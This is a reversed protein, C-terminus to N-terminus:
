DKGASLNSNVGGAKRPRWRARLLDYSKEAEMILEMILEESYIEGYIYIYRYGYRYGLPETDRSFGLGACTITGITVLHYGIEM